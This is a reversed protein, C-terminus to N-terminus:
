GERVLECVVEELGREKAILYTTYGDLLRNEEDIVIPNPCILQQSTLVRNEFRLRCQELKSTLPEVMNDTQIDMLKRKVECRVVKVKLAEKLWVTNQLAKIAGNLSKQVEYGEEVMYYNGHTWKLGYPRLIADIQEPVWEVPFQKIKQVNVEVRLVTM